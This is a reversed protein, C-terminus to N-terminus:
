KVCRMYKEGGNAGKMELKNAELLILKFSEVNTDGEVLCKYAAVFEKGDFRAGNQVGCSTEMGIVVTTANITLGTESMSNPKLMAACVKKSEGWKGILQAPIQQAFTSGASLTLVLLAAELHTTKMPHDSQQQSKM